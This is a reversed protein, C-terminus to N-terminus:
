SRTQWTLLISKSLLQQLAQEQIVIYRMNHSRQIEMMLWLFKLGNYLFQCNPLLQLWSQNELLFQKHKYSELIWVPFVLLARSMIHESKLSYSNQFKMDLCLLLSPCQFKAIHMRKWLLTKETVFLNTNQKLDLSRIWFWFKMNPWIVEKCILLLGNYGWM